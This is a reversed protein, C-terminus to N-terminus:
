KFEMVQKVGVKVPFLKVQEGVWLVSATMRDHLLRIITVLKDLCGYKRLIMWLTERNVTDFAKSLNFLVIYLLTRQEKCKEQVQQLAFIM